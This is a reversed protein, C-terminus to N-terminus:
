FLMWVPEPSVLEIRIIYIISIIYFLIFLFHLVDSTNIVLFPTGSSRPGAKTQTQQSAAMCTVCHKRASIM